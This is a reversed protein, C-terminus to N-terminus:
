QNAAEKRFTEVEDVDRLIKDINLIEIIQQTPDDVRGGAM